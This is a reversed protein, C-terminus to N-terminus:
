DIGKLAEWINSFKLIKLHWNRTRINRSKPYLFGKLTEIAPRGDDGCGGWQVFIIVSVQCEDNSFLCINRLVMVLCLM